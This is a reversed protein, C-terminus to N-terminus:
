RHLRHVGYDALGIMSPYLLLTKQIFLLKVIHHLKIKLLGFNSFNTQVSTFQPWSKLFQMAPDSTRAVIADNDTVDFIAFFRM